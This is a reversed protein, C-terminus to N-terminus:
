LSYFKGSISSKGVDGRFVSYMSWISRVLVNTKEAATFIDTGGLAALSAYSSNM